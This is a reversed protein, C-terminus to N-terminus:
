WLLVLFTIFSNVGYCGLIKQAAVVKRGDSGQGLERIEREIAITNVPDEIIPNAESDLKCNLKGKPLLKVALLCLKM